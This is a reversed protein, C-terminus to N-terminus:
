GADWVVDRRVAFRAADLTAPVPRGHAILGTLLEACGFSLTWGWFSQGCNAYLNSYGGVRGIIPAGDASVARCGVWDELPEGHGRLRETAAGFARLEPARAGPAVIAGGGLRLTRKGDRELLCVYAQQGPAPKPLSAMLVDDTGFLGASKGAYAYERIFGHVAVHPFLCDSAAGLCLVVRDTRIAGASTAVADVRTAGGQTATRLGRLEAGLVFDVSDDDRCLAELRECLARPSGTAIQHARFEVRELLEPESPDLPFVCTPMISSRGFRFVAPAVGADLDRAIVMARRGLARIDATIAASLSPQALMRARYRLYELTWGPNGSVVRAINALGLELPNGYEVLHDVREPELQGSSMRSSAAAVSSARDIVCVRLGANRLGWATTMGVIGAGVIVADYQM